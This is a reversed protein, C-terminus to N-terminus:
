QLSVSEKSQLYEWRNAHLRLRPHSVLLHLIISCIGETHPTVRKEILNPIRICAEAVGLTAGGKLGVIGFIASGSLKAFELARVIPTSINKTTDGGGVSLVLLADKSNLRSGKLWQSFVTEFGEDNTRASFEAINDTPAYAEFACIKRFDGVAHSASSASGGLGLIFLRGGSKRIEELREAIKEIERTDISTLIQQAETIYEHSFNM